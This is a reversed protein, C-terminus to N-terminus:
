ARCCPELMSVFCSAFCCDASAHALTDALFAPRHQRITPESGSDEKGRPSLPSLPQSYGCIVPLLACLSARGGCSCSRWRVCCRPWWLPCTPRWRRCARHMHHLCWSRSPVVTACTMRWTCVCWTPSSPLGECPLTTASMSCQLASSCITVYSCSSPGKAADPLHRCVSGRALRPRQADASRSRNHWACCRWFPCSTPPAPPSRAARRWGGRCCCCSARCTSCPWHLCCLRQVSVPHLLPRDRYSQPLSLLTAASLAHTM